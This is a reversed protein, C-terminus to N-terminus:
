EMPDIRGRKDDPVPGRDRERLLRAILAEAPVTRREDLSVARDNRLTWNGLYDSALGIVSETRVEDGDRLHFPRKAVILLVSSGKEVPGSIDNSRAPSSSVLCGSHTGDGYLRVTILSGKALPVESTSWLVRSVRISADRYRWPVVPIKGERASFEEGDTSNWRPESVDAVTGILGGHSGSVLGNVTPPQTRDMRCGPTATPSAEALTGATESSCGAIALSALAGAIAVVTSRFRM